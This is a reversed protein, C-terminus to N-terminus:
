PFFKLCKRKKITQTEQQRINNVILNHKKKPSESFERYSSIFQSIYNPSYTILSRTLAKKIYLKLKQKM